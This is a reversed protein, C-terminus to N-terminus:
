TSESSNDEEAWPITLQEAQLEKRLNEITGWRTRVYSPFPQQRRIYEKLWSRTKPDSPYGSSTFGVAVLSHDRQVKAVISAASVAPYNLDAKPEIIFEPLPKDQNKMRKLVKPIGRPHTPADIIVLDPQNSCILQIFAQEELHNLNGNDIEEATISIYSCVGIDPLEQLINQRYKEIDYQFIHDKWM